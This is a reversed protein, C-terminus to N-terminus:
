IFYSLLSVLAQADDKSLQKEATTKEVGDIMNKILQDAQEKTRGKLLCEKVQKEYLEQYPNPKYKEKYFKKVAYMISDIMGDFETRNDESKKAWNSIATPISVSIDGIDITM